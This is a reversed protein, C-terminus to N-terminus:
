VKDYTEREMINLYKADIDEQEWETKNGIYILKGEKFMCLIDALETVDSLIHTSIVVIAEGSISHVIEKFRIREKPDLGVTPEDLLVIRPEGIIAQAISLRQQMGGSLQKIKKSHVDELNVLELVRKVEDKIRSKDTIGKLICMYEIYECVKMNPYLSVKQPLFGILRRYEKGMVTIDKDDYLVQGSTAKKVGAIINILTTKGAGNPGLFGYVGNNMALEINDLAKKDKYYKTINTLKIM